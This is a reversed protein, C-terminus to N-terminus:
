NLVFIHIIYYRTITTKSKNKILLDKNFTGASKNLKKLSKYARM